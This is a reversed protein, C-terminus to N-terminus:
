VVNVPSTFRPKGWPSGFIGSEASTRLSKVLATLIRTFFYLPDALFRAKRQPPRFGLNLSAKLRACAKRGNSMELMTGCNKFSATLHSVQGLTFAPFKM